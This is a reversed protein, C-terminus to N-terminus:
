TRKWIISCIVMNTLYWVIGLSSVSDVLVIRVQHNSEDHVWLLIKPSIREGSIIGGSQDLFVAHSHNVFKPRKLGAGHRSRGKPSSFCAPVM